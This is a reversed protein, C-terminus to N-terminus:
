EWLRTEMIQSKNFNELRLYYDATDILADLPTLGVIESGIIPVGYREAELRVMEFVRFIPSRKYNVLNMSVQVIGREKIEFGLAKVYRFGGDKHRIVTAIKKAIELNNTGLNINYAILPERAGVVTAGASPHIKAEGFDPKRDPNKGIEKSLGEFEGKRIDALNARDPRTAAAEYLYIPIKLKEAIEKGLQKAIVVCEDMTISSIPVFPIVDTAGIRPHEGKHKRLDILETAKKAAKFAAKEVAQPTGIFTIVSRNHDKDMQIDLLKADKTSEIEKAIEDVVNKRRGESFNPVCEVIKQL